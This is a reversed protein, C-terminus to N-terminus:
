HNLQSDILSRYLSQKRIKDQKEAELEAALNKEWILRDQVEIRKQELERTRQLQKHQIQDRLFSSTALNVQKRTKELTEQSSDRAQDSRSILFTSTQETKKKSINLESVM